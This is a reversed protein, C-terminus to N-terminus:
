ISEIGKLSFYFSFSYFFHIISSYSLCPTFLIQTSTKTETHWKKRVLIKYCKKKSFFNRGHSSAVELLTVLLKRTKISNKLNGLKDLKRGTNGTVERSVIEIESVREDLKSLM